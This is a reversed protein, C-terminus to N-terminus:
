KNKKPTGFIANLSREIGDKSRGQGKHIKIIKLKVRHNAGHLEYHDKKMEQACHNFRDPHLLDL